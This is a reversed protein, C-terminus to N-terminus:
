PQSKRFVMRNYSCIRANESTKGHVIGFSGGAPDARPAGAGDVRAQGLGAHEVPEAHGHRIYGRARGHLERGPARVHAQRERVDEAHQRQVHRGTGDGDACVICAANVGGRQAGHGEAPLRVHADAGPRAAGGIGGRQRDGGPLRQGHRDKVAADVGHARNSEDASAAMGLEAVARAASQQVHGHRHLVRRVGARILDDGRERLDVHQGRGPRMRADDEAVRGHCVLQRAQQGRAQAGIANFVYAHRLGGDLAVPQHGVADAARCLQKAARAYLAKRAIHERLRSRVHHEDLEARVIEDVRVALALLPQQGRHCERLHCRAVACKGVHGM